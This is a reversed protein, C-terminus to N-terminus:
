KGAASGDVFTQKLVTKMRSVYKKTSWGRERTLQEWNGISLITFYMDTADKQTWGPALRGETALTAIVKRCYSRVGEMNGKWAAATAEDTDRTSMMAKALGYIEPIYNGWVDVSAELLEIGDRAQKIREMRKGLGKVEDVYHSTAIILETRSPFHLYVAQRSIGVAAAIESMSVSQGPHQELLRWTAQLIRTRTDAEDSSM